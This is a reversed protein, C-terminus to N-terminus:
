PDSEIAIATCPIWSNQLNSRLAADILAQVRSGERFGPQFPLNERVAAIFPRALAAVAPIRGDDTEELDPVDILNPEHDPRRALYLQFGRVYDQSRNEIVISGSEGLFEVRHGFGAFAHTCVEVTAPLQGDLELRLSVLTDTKRQDGPAKSLTANIRNIPRGCLDELYRFVHSVFSYLAGGGEDTRVKWSDTGMRNAFTEVHWRVHVSRLSGIERILTGAHQFVPLAAIEFDVATPLGTASAVEELEMAQTLTLALPKECFVPKRLTLAQKAIEVQLAPPTAISVVDVEPDSVLDRWDGFSRPVDLRSAARAARESDSACIAAVDCDDVSRFAPVHVQQGFGIGVIGIRIRDM